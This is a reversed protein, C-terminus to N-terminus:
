VREQLDRESLLSTMRNVHGQMLRELILREIMLNKLNLHELM